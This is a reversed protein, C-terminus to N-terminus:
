DQVHDPSAARRARRRARVVYVTLLGVVVVWGYTPTHGYVVVLEGGGLFGIRNSTPPGCTSASCTRRRTLGKKRVV